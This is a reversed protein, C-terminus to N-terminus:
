KKMSVKGSSTTATAAATKNYGAPFNQYVGFSLIYMSSCSVTHPSCRLSLPQMTKSSAASGGRRRELEQVLPTDRGPLCLTLVHDDEIRWGNEAGRGCSTRMCAKAGDINGAVAQQTYKPVAQRLLPPLSLPPPPPTEAWDNDSGACPYLACNGLGTGRWGGGTNSGRSPAHVAHPM